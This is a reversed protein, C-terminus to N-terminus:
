RSIMMCNFIKKLKFGEEHDRYYSYIRSTSITHNKFLDVEKKNLQILSSYLFGNNMPTIDVNQYPKNITKNETFLIMIGNKIISEQYAFTQIKLYYNSTDNKTSKVFEIGEVLPTTIRVEKNFRTHQEKLLTCYYDEPYNRENITQSEFVSDYLTHHKVKGMLDNELELVYKNSEKSEHIQSTTFKKRVLSDYNSQYRNISISSPKISVSKNGTDYETYFNKYYNVSDKDLVNASSFVEKQQALVCSYGFVLLSIGLSIKKKM